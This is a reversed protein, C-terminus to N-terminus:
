IKLEHFNVNFRKEDDIIIMPNNCKVAGTAPRRWPKKQASRPFSIDPSESM